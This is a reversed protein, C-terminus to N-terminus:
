DIPGAPRIADPEAHFLWRWLGWTLVVVVWVLLTVTAVFGDIMWSGVPATPEM